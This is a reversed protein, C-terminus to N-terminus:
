NTKPTGAVKEVVRRSGHCNKEELHRYLEEVLVGTVLKWVLVLCTISRFNSM